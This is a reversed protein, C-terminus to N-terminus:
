KLLFRMEVPNHDSYAFNTDIVNAYVVEVNDTVM